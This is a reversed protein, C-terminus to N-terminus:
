EYQLEVYVQPSLEDYHIGVEQEIVNELHSLINDKVGLEDFVQPYQKVKFSQISVDDYESKLYTDDMELIMDFDEEDPYIEFKIISSAKFDENLESVYDSIAQLIQGRDDHDEINMKDYFSVSKLKETRLTKLQELARDVYHTLDIEFDVYSTIQSLDVEYEFGKGIFKFDEIPEDNNFYAISGSVYQDDELRLGNMFCLADSLSLKQYIDPM